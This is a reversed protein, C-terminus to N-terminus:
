TRWTSFILARSALLMPKEVDILTPEDRVDDPLLLAAHLPWRYAEQMLHHGGQRARRVHAFVGLADRQNSAKKTFPLLSASPFNTRKNNIHRRGGLYGETDTLEFLIQERSSDIAIMMPLGLISM